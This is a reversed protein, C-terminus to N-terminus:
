VYEFWAFTGAFLTLTQRLLRIPLMQYCMAAVDHHVQVWHSGLSFRLRGDLLVHSDSGLSLEKGNMASLAALAEAHTRYELM